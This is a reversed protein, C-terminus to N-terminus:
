RVRKAVLAVQAEKGCLDQLTDVFGNVYREGEEKTEVRVDAELEGSNPIENVTLKQSLVPKVGSQKAMMYKFRAGSVHTAVYKVQAAPTVAIRVTVSVPPRSPGCGCLVVGTVVVAAVLMVAASKVVNGLL